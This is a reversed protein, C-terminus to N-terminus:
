TGAISRLEWVGAPPTNAWVTTLHQWSLGRPARFPARPQYTFQVLRREPSGALFRCLSAITEIRSPRPLSRFPLSSVLVVRGETDSLSDVITSAPALRVDAEPFRQQLRCALEPQLEVAILPVDPMRDLLARTVPGTGAGLEVVLDAGESALAMANSLSRSSPLVAGTAAPNRFMSRLLETPM